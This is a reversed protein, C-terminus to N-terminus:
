CDAPSNPGNTRRRAETARELLESPTDCQLLAALVGDFVEQATVRELVAGLRAATEADFKMAAHRRLAVHVPPVVGRRRMPLLGGSTGVPEDAAISNPWRGGEPLDGPATRGPPSRGSWSASRPRVPTGCVSRLISSVGLDDINFDKLFITGRGYATLDILVGGDTSQAADILSDLLVYGDGAFRPDARWPAGTEGVEAQTAGPIVLDIVRPAARWRAKGICLVIPLVPALCDSSRFRRRRWM